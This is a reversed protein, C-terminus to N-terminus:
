GIPTLEVRNVVVHENGDRYVARFIALFQAQGGAALEVTGTVRYGLTGNGTEFDLNNNLVFKGVGRAIVDAETLLCPHPPISGYVVLTARDTIWRELARDSPTLALLFKLAGDFVPPEGACGAENQTVLGVSYVLGQEFAPFFFPAEEGKIVQAGNSLDSGSSPSNSPDLPASAHNCAALLATLILVFHRPM